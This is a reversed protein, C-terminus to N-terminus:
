AAYMNGANDFLIGWTQTMGTNGVMTWSPAANPTPNPPPPLTNSSSSGGGCGACVVLLSTSLSLLLIKKM